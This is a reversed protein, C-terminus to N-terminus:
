ICIVYLELLSVSYSIRSQSSMSMGSRGSDQSTFSYDNHDISKVGSYLSGFSRLDYDSSGSIRPTIGYGSDMEEYLSHFMRDISPRGSSVFSIDSDSISSEYSIHTPRAGRTFPSRDMFSTLIRLFWKECQSRNNNVNM